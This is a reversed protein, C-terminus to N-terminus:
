IAVLMVSETANRKGDALNGNLRSGCITKVSLDGGEASGQAEGSSALMTQCIRASLECQICTPCSTTSMSFSNTLLGMAAINFPPLDLSRGSFIRMFSLCGGGEKRGNGGRSGCCPLRPLPPPPPLTQQHNQEPRRYDYNARKRWRPETTM